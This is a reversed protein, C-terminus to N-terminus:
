AQLPFVKGKDKGRGKRHPVLRQCLWLRHVTDGSETESLEKALSCDLHLCFQLFDENTGTLGGCNQSFDNVRASFLLKVFVTIFLCESASLVRCMHRLHFM